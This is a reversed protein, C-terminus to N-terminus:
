KTKKGFGGRGGFQVEFPEGTLEKWAKKQEPTLLKTIKEMGEKQIGQVKKQAATRAEQDQFDVGTFAEKMQAGLDENIKKIDDKQEDTLKLEKAVEADAFAGARMTQRQIQKIRKVQDATLTDKMFKETETAIEKQIEQGKERDMNMFAERAEQRKPELKKNFEELKKTQDETLKIEKQVGPNGLLMGPGGFGGGRPGQAAAPIAMLAAVVGALVLKSGRM